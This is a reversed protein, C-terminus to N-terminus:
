EARFSGMAGLEGREVVGDDLEEGFPFSRGDQLQFAEGFVAM